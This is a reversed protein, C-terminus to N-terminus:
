MRSVPKLGLIDFCKRLVCATAEVLLIRGMNVKVIDGASDKELCYCNDYFEAFATAIDYTLECLQHLCLSKTVRTIVEPLRILVKALKWEKDHDLSIPVTAAAEQVQQPTVRATRAISRIRTYAYLLYVATNGKDDLMKDFSFVYDNGRNHMLDAYKICGYAVAEQAAQLEEPTLVKDREKEKLKVLSRRLGEDLLDALRITEGSRTKFKKKDEGLVVGFGVHDVRVKTDDLIGIKKACNQLIEFHMAQGADTVYIIWDAKEEEVRYKITAMDSTDYTYGGDSKVLILPIPDNPHGYMVKRGNEDTEIFNPIYALEEEDAYTKVLEVMRTQYYSEGKETLTIDLREYLKNFEKRSENCIMKWAKTHDPEFNQLKVVCQYARKKFDEDKDFRSKSERYFEQLDNIPPSEKLYNPFKDQLHAILMGFQTGWDGIHNVRVVDHGLFELLRSLSEGIITSRLHGVHMEKAVNPSSFDVVVRLRKELSPLKVGSLLIDKLCGIAYHRSLFINIFGPGAIEIKEVQDSSEVHQVIEEAVSRPPKKISKIMEYINSAMSPEKDKKQHGSSNSGQLGGNHGTVDLYSVSLGSVRVPILYDRIKFRTRTGTKFCVTANKWLEEESLQSELISGRARLFIICTLLNNLKNPCSADGINAVKVTLLIASGQAKLFQSIPLAANCQYDCFSSVVIPCPAEPLDPFAATIARSFLGLLTQHVDIM